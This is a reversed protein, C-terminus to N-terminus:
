NEENKHEKRNNSFWESAFDVLVKQPIMRVEAVGVKGKRVLHPMRKEFAKGVDEFDDSSFDLDKFTIWERKGNVM